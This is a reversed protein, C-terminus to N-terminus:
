FAGPLCWSINESQLSTRLIEMMLGRRVMLRRKSNITGGKYVTPLKFTRAIPIRWGRMEGKWYVACSKIISDQETGDVGLNLGERVICVHGTGRIRGCAFTCCNLMKLAQEVAKRYRDEDPEHARRTSIAMILWCSRSRTLHEIQSQTRGFGSTRKM